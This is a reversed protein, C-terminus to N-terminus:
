AWTPPSSAKTSRDLFILNTPAITPREVLDTNQNKTSVNMENVQQAIKQLSPMINDKIQKEINSTKFSDISGTNAQLPIMRSKNPAPIVPSVNVSTDMSMISLNQASFPSATVSFSPETIELKQESRGIADSFVTKEAEINIKAENNDL